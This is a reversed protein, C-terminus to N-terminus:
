EENDEIFDSLTTLEEQAEEPLEDSYERLREVAKLGISGATYLALVNKIYEVARDSDSQYLEDSDVVTISWTTDVITVTEDSEVWSSSHYEIEGTNATEIIIRIEHQGVEECHIDVTFEEKSKHLLTDYQKKDDVFARSTVLTEASFEVGFSVTDGKVVVFSDLDPVKKSMM